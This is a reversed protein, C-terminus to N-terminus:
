DRGRIINLMDIEAESVRRGIAAREVSRDVGRRYIEAMTMCMVGWKLSGMLQWYRMRQEDATGGAERYGRLLDRRRGFGGVPRHSMGFRWSNVTIWGLDEMPDGRHALEWDLVGVLGQEDVVLNGNRFDGHVLVPEVPEPLRNELWRFALEFVPRAHGYGDYRQRYASLVDAAQMAPLAAATAPRAAHIAALAAGCQQALRSRADAYQDRRLIRPALTEGDLWEMVFGAGLGEDPALVHVVGAVPLGAAALEGVLRGELGPDLALLDEDPEEGDREKGDWARRLVLPRRSEGTVREFSWTERSAGGTLRRLGEVRGAGGTLIRALAQALEDPSSAKGSTTM